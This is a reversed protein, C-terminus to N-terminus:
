FYLLIKPINPIINTKPEQTTTGRTILLMYPVAGKSVANRNVTKQDPM